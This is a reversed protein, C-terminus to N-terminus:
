PKADKLKEIIGVVYVYSRKPNDINKRAVIDFANKVKEQGYQQIKLIIDEIVEPNNEEFVIQAYKRAQAYAEKGYKEEIGKLKLELEKPNYLKLIKYMKPMRKDYPKDTLTDYKVEILKKRRLEGMGKNIIDQGVGGFQKTITAVSKSWYPKTDSVNSCALNIFLCFKARFSLIRNWGFEFYDNPLEFSLEEPIEYM